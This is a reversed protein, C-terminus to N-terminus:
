RSMAIQWKSRHWIATAERGSSFPAEVRQGRLSLIATKHYLVSMFPLGDQPTSSLQSTIPSIYGISGLVNM